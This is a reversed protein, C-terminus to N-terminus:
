HCGCTKVIMKPYKKLKVNNEYTYYLIAITGLDTPACSAHPPRAHGEEVADLINILTQLLAHTTTILDDHYVDPFQCLGHCFNADYGQPAIIWHQWGLDRFSVHLHRRQCPGGRSMGLRSSGRPVTTVETLYM